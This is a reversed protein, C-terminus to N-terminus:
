VHARGIQFTAIYDEKKQEGIKTQTYASNQFIVSLAGRWTDDFYMRKLFDGAEQLDDETLDAPHQKNSLAMITAIGVDVLPHGTFSMM